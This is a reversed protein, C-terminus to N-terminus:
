SDIWLPLGRKWLLIPPIEFQLPQDYPHWVTGAPLAIADCAIARNLVSRLKGESPEELAAVSFEGIFQGTRRAQRHLRNRVGDLVDIFDYALPQMRTRVITRQREQVEAVLGARDVPNGHTHGSIWALEIATRISDRGMRVCWDLSSTDLIEEGNEELYRTIAEKAFVQWSEAYPDSGLHIIAYHDGPILTEDRENLLQEAIGPRSAIATLVSFSQDLLTLLLRVSPAPADEARDLFLATDLERTSAAKEVLDQLDFGVPRADWRHLPYRSIARQVEEARKVSRISGSLQLDEPLLPNMWSASLRARPKDDELIGRFIAAALLASTKQQIRLDDDDSFLLVRGGLGADRTIPGLTKLLNIYLAGPYYAKKRHRLLMTKGAGKSGIILSSRGLTTPAGPHPVHLSEVNKVKEGDARVQSLDHNNEVTGRV